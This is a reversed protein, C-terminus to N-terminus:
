VAVSQSKSPLVPPLSNDSSTSWCRCESDLLLSVGLSKRKVKRLFTELLENVTGHFQVPRPDFEFLNEISHQQRRCCTHKEFTGGSIKLNSEKCKSPKGNVNM